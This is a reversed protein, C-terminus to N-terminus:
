RDAGPSRDQLPIADPPRGIRLRPLDAIALERSGAPFGNAQMLFALIDLYRSDDLSAPDDAPMTTKVYEFVGAPGKRQLSALFPAGRLPPAGTDAALTGSLDGVHCSACFAQYHAKGRRSQEATFVGADLTLVDDTQARAAGAALSSVLAAVLAIARGRRALRREFGASRLSPLRRM